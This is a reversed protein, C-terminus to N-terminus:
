GNIIEQFVPAYINEHGTIKKHCSKCLTIGNLPDYRLSANTSWPRIHHVQLNKKSACGPMKCQYRDRKRVIQRFLKYAPDKYNRM